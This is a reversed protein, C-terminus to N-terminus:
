IIAPSETTARLSQNHELITAEFLPTMLKRTINISTKLGEILLELDNQGLDILIQFSGYPNKQWNWSTNGNLIASKAGNKIKLTCLKDILIHEFLHGIETEKVELSFPLNKDNFCQTRLVSPCNNTLFELTQPIDSTNVFSVNLQM